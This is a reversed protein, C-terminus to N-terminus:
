WCWRSPLGTQGAQQRDESGGGGALGVQGHRHRLPDSGLDQRHIRALDVPSHVDAGSLGGDLLPPPDPVVHDVHGLGLVGEGHGLEAALGPPGQFARFRARHQDHAPRPEMEPRHDVGHGKGRGIGLQAPQQLGGVM